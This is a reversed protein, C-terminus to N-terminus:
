ISGTYQPEGGESMPSTIKAIRNLGKPNIAEMIIQSELREFKFM